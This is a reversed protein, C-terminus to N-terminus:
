PTSYFCKADVGIWETSGGNRLVTAKVQPTLNSETGDLSKLTKANEHFPFRAIYPAIWGLTGEGGLDQKRYNKSPGPHRNARAYPLVLDPNQVADLFFKVALHLSGVGAKRRSYLDINQLRAREGIQMLASLTRGHYFLARAGRRTEIPLSGDNRM